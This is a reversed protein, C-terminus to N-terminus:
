VSTTFGADVSGSTGVRRRLDDNEAQLKVLLGSKEELEQKTEALQKSLEEDIEGAGVAIGSCHM